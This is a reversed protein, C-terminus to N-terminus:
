LQEHKFKKNKKLFFNICEDLIKVKFVRMVTIYLVAAIIIRLLLLVILNSDIACTILYTIIMVTLSVIFFPLIDKLVDALRINTLKNVIIQWVGLWLISFLTCAWVITMIGQTYLLFILILQILVQGINCWMYLDSRGKSIVLNQYLSYFPVFSGGICLIQLLSASTSWKEGLATIIFEHAVLALGLMIPFSLFATFRLLKRFVRIERDHEESISVLVTQAIQGVSGAITSNAMTNWKNAQSYNGVSSISFLRGFVFTLINQNLINILSTILLKVSFSFMRKVPQFDIVFSPRWPAYYFRGINSVTIYVIQQWALSWYSFGLYALCVGTTGASILAIIGIIAIERNMMNKLLYGNCAIGLASIPLTLFVLRSVEVLCPQHFFAAILPASFFLITYLIISATINFWFVSNYDNDTPHKLNILGNTFGSAQLAGAVATFITLVGVIGYEAPSLLRALVIGIILNLVQASGNNVAGWFLGKATKEKLTETM